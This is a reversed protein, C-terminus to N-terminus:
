LNAPKRIRSEGGSIFFESVSSSVIWGQDEEGKKEATLRVSRLWRLPRSSRQLERSGMDVAMYPRALCIGTEVIIGSCGTPARVM